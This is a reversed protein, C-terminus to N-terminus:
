WSVTISATIQFIFHQVDWDCQKIRVFSLGELSNVDENFASHTIDNLNNFVPVCEQVCMSFSMHICM